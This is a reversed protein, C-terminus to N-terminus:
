KQCLLYYCLLITFTVSLPHTLTFILIAVLVAAPTVLVKLTVTVALTITVAPTVTFTATTM